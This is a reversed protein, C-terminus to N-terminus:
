PAVKVNPPPNLFKSYNASDSITAAIFVAVFLLAAILAIANFPSDWRLHMFYLLVLSAKVVAIALAVYINAKGLDFWTVSVTLVTLVVLAFYVTLLVRPPVVHAHVHPDGAGPAAHHSDAHTANPVSAM